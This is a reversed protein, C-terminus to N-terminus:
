GLHGPGFAAGPGVPGAPQSSTGGGNSNGGGASSGGAAPGSGSSTGSAGGVSGGSGSGSSGAGSSGSGGSSSASSVTPASSVPSVARVQTVPAGASREAQRAPRAAHRPAPQGLHRSRHARAAGVARRELDFPSSRSASDIGARRARVAATKRSSADLEVIFSVAVALAAVIAVRSRLPGRFAAVRGPRFAAVRRPSFGALRSGRFSELRRGVTDRKRPQGDRKGPESRQSWRRWAGSRALSERWRRAARLRENHRDERPGRIRPRALAGDDPAGGANESSLNREITPGQLADQVAASEEGWFDAASPFKEQHEADPAIAQDSARLKEPPDTEAASAERLEAEEHARKGFPVLDERPGLWDRPLRVVNDESREDQKGRENHPGEKDM